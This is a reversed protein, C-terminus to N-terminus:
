RELKSKAPLPAKHEKRWATLDKLLEDAKDKSSKVLNKKEGLDLMTNYLEVKGSVHFQILKWNGQRVISCAKDKYQSPLHWYINRELTETGELLPLMTDGDLTETYDKIGALSLFSM